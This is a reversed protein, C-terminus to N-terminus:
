RFHSLTVDARYIRKSSSGADKPEFWDVKIEKVSKAMIESVAEVEQKPVNGVCRGNVLVHIAPEGDYEFPELTVSIDDDEALQAAYLESLIKQRSSGNDNSFTVGAVSFEYWGIRRRREVEDNFSKLRAQTDAAKAAAREAAQKKRLKDARKRARRDQELAYSSIFCFLAVILMALGVAAMGESSVITGLFWVLLAVFLVGLWIICATSMVFAGIRIFYVWM